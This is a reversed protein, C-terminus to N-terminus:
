EADERAAEPASRLLLDVYQCEIGAADLSAGARGRIGRLVAGPPCRLRFRDGGTGGAADTTEIDRGRYAQRGVRKRVEACLLRLRDVLAGSRGTLGVAIKEDPCALDFSDRGPTSGFRPSEGGTPGPRLVGSDGRVLKSCHARISNVRGSAGVTGSLRRVARGTGCDWDFPDGNDGGTQSTLQTERDLVLSDPAPNCGGDRVLVCTGDYCTEVRFGDPPSRDSSWNPVVATNLHESHRDLADLDPLKIWPVDQHLYSYGPSAVWSEGVVSFGCIDRRTSLSRGARLRGRFQTWNTVDTEGGRTMLDFGIGACINLGLIGAAILASTAAVPVPDDLTRRLRALLNSAWLGVLVAGIAVIPYIFRYEKHRVGSHAVLLAAAPWALAPYRVLGALLAGGLLLSGGPSVQWLWKFYAYWPAVGTEAAKGEIVNAHYNVVVSQFPAGWTIWDVLGGVGVGLGIGTILASFQRHPRDSFMPVATAVAVAAPVLQIRSICCIGLLTGGAFVRWWSQDAFRIVFLAGVLLHATFCEYFAKPAFYVLELWVLPIFLALWADPGSHERESWRFAVIAPILSAASLFVKVGVLYGWSGPGLWATSKMVLALLGPFLWNRAGQQYEWSLKGYGFAWTHAPELTQYIQDSWYLSPLGIGVAVRGALGLVLLLGILRLRRDDVAM